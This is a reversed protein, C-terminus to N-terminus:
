SIACQDKLLEVTTAKYLRCNFDLVSDSHSTAFEEAIFCGGICQGEIQCGICRKNRGTFRNAVLSTYENNPPFNNFVDGVKTSSYGCIFISGNPAVCLSHGKQGGCFGTQAETISPYMNEAPREWFGSVYIGLSKGFHKLAILKQAIQEPLLNQLHIVDVDLRLDKFGYESAWVLFEEDIGSLNDSTITVSFGDIAL